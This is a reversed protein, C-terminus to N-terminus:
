RALRLVCAAADLRLPAAALESRLDPACTGFASFVITIREKLGRELRGSAAPQAGGTGGTLAWAGSPAIELRMVEARRVATSRAHQVLTDLQELDDPRHPVFAVGVVAVAITMVVLVVLVEVLTFGSRARMGM